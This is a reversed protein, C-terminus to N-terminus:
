EREDRDLIWRYLREAMEAPTLLRRRIVVPECGSEGARFSTVQILWAPKWVFFANTAGRPGRMEYAMMRVEQERFRWAEIRKVESSISPRDCPIPKGGQRALATRVSDLQQSWDTSDRAEWFHDLLTIGRTRRDLSVREEFRGRATVKYCHRWPMGEPDECLRGSEPTWGALGVRRMMVRPRWVTWWGVAMVTPLVLALAVRVVIRRSM